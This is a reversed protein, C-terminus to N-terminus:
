QGELLALSYEVKNSPIVWNYTFSIIKASISGANGQGDGLEDSAFAYSNIQAGNILNDIVAVAAKVTALDGTFSGIITIRRSAGFMDFVQATDSNQGFYTIPIVNSEKTTEITEVNGLSSGNFTPVAM